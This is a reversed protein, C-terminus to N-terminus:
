LAVLRGAPSETLVVEPAIVPVGVVVPVVVTASLAVFVPPVPVNFRVNVTFLGLGTMVLPDVANAVVPVDNLPYVIVALLVGVLKLAVPNGAPNLTLVEEPAM